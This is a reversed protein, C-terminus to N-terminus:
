SATRTSVVWKCSKAQSPEHPVIGVDQLAAYLSAAAGHFSVVDAPRFPLHWCRLTASAVVEPYMPHFIEVTRGSLTNQPPDFVVKNTPDPHQYKM